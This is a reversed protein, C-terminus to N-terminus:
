NGRAQSSARAGVANLLRNFWPKAAPPQASAAATQPAPTADAALQALTEFIMRRVPIRCGLIPEMEGVARMALLSHGGLDFFNDSLAVQDIALLRKWIDAIAIQAETHPAVFTADHIPGADTPAPLAKRDIKGNPLLPIADIAVFHQPLMYDPLSLRLHERLAHPQPTDGRPVVYAVLRADGPRDERVIVVTRAVQPHSALTTEIEGLEIRYGRVKVQFDMRGQHELMGDHRWRGRDGTRYLKAGPRWPDDIFRDATLEPRHLYGLTVGDGGICIEGPVGIPCPQLREDLIHVQTNAIPRGISIGADLSSVKCCTSWVTTETPGYMNWLEGTRELLQAALDAPLAEGGILAKFAPSGAWGAEILMRWTAPTAQMVTAQSSLLLSCLAQGDIADDRSALVVQAGVTLPLLLELVAIDFSLTTVALLRDSSTLGPERAMSLLFNVVARHPVVVGKPRGTSGSTYIVYAPDDPRAALEDAPVATAPRSAIRAADGDLLLTRERPWPLLSTLAAETVLLALRADDAMYALREAPFAPDLPVYAAGAKLIALQTVVMEISREVCLGVLAGRSIGHSRLEHALRNSRADLEAYSLQQGGCRLASVAPTRQAQGALLRDVTLATDHGTTDTANWRDLETQEAPTFTRYRGIPQDADALAQQLLLEFREAVRVVSERKFLDAAYTFTCEIGGPVEVCWLSLDESAGHLGITARAHSLDGWDLPRERADQFSFMTQYIMPRSPDRPVNLERVLHEFPVDPCTFADTVTDQVRKLWRHFPLEPQPQLRLPLANVFFGMLAELEPQERGRVPTGIVLDSQQTLRYLLASYAALLTVYLTTGQRQALQHLARTMDPSFRKTYSAGRGSMKPPRPQDLPLELPEPLPSLRERWHATQRALEDGQMWAQQWAAFDGYAIPLAPLQPETGRVCAGYLESLERYLLDFSWGDWIIHHAMFFLVHEQAGLRFLHVRFLPASDLAIPTKVMAAIRSQMTDEREGAPLASLDTVPLAPVDLHELVRQVAGEPTREFWTRLVSQREVLRRLAQQLAELQMPGKLRHASPVNHVPTDPDLQELFWLRQQMLSMPASRQDARREIAAPAPTSAQSHQPALAAALSAPTPAEFLTKLGIRRGCVRSLRSALKAALLSHGGLEFFNDDRQLPASGLVEGMLRALEEAGPVAHNQPAPDAKPQTDAVPTALAAAEAPAPLSKRDIKGNPLLPLQPMPVFQAPVMYDPLHRKLHTRLAAADLTSGAAPVAYAVLRVDGPTDERTVVVSRSVGPAADLQAEIEGLEIRYGRM